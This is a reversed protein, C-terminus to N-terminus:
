DTGIAAERKIERLAVKEKIERWAVPLCSLHFAFEGVITIIDWKLSIIDWGIYIVGATAQKGAVQQYQRAVSGM